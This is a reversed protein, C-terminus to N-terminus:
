SPLANGDRTCDPFRRNATLRHTITFFFNTPPRKVTIVETTEDGKGVDGAADEDSFTQTLPIVKLVFGCNQQVQGKADVREYV